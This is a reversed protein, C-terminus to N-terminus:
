FVQREGRSFPVHLQIVSPRSWATLLREVDHDDQQWPRAWSIDELETLLARGPVMDNYLKFNQFCLPHLLVPYSASEKRRWALFTEPILQTRTQGSSRSAPPLLRRLAGRGEQHGMEWRSATALARCLQVFGEETGSCREERWSKHWRASSSTADEERPWWCHGQSSKMRSTLNKICAPGTPCVFSSQDMPLM